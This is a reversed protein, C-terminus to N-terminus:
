LYSGISSLPISFFVALCLDLVVGEQIIFTLIDNSVMGRHSRKQEVFTEPLSKM